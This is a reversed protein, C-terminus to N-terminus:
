DPNEDSPLVNFIESCAAQLMRNYETECIIEGPSEVRDFIVIGDLHDVEHQIVRALFGECAYGQIREGNPSTYSLTIARPRPVLARIGPISLCGEWEKELEKARWSIEPNILVLPEVEPANPYRVSPHPHVVCIRRSQYVQPAALGVGHAHALTAFMDEVLELEAQDLPVEVARAVDRLVPHGLHAIQLLRAM